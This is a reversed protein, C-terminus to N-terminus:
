RLLLRGCALTSAPSAQKLAERGRKTTATDELFVRTLATLTRLERLGVDTVKYCGWLSLYTLGTLGRLERLGVDTVLLCGCLNVHTLCTLGRLERLAADTVGSCGGLHLATLATLQGVARLGEVRLSIVGWLNLSSLAPLRGCLSRVMHEPVGGRIRVTKCSADHVARWRRCVGRVANSSRPEWGVALHDLVKLLLEKPLQGWQATEPQTGLPWAHWSAM